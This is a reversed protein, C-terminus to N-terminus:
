CYNSICGDAGLELTLKKDERFLSTTMVIVRCSPNAAKIEQLALLGSM